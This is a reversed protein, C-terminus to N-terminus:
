LQLLAQWPNCVRGHVVQLIWLSPLDPTCGRHEQGGVWASHVLRNLLAVIEAASEGKHTVEAHRAGHHWLRLTVSRPAASHRVLWSLLSRLRPLISAQNDALSITLDQRLDRSM